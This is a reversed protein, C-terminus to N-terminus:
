YSWGLSFGGAVRSAQFGDPKSLPMGVFVDVATGLIEGRMGLATGTLRRGALTAATPGGVVGHDLAVYLELASASPLIFALENRLLWGREASLVFEGDFGRVTYRGGISFRDQPVLPTQNWQARLSVQFRLQQEGASVPVTASATAATLRGRSTGEGFLEEPAALSGILGTGKRVNLGLDITARGVFERHVAGLEWGAMRRRQVEVETDDIWNRSTRRWVSLFASTKRVADRHVIRSLRLEANSSEGSYIYAQYAGAVSQHYDSSSATFGLLWYGFPLSYHFTTAESGNTGPKGGGLDRTLSLYFLDNLTWWHDYSVTLSGRVKGAAKTGSDDVAAHVRLPFRQQWQVVVDSEGPQAGEGEAPAIQLDAEASPVRKLNELGQELDRLDLLEGPRGPMANVLTARGDVDPATRISRIRGPVVTLELVGSRLDQPGALIRSTVFGRAILANQMRNMVIGIGGTGLCRGLPADAEGSATHAAAEMAWQFRDAMQGTLRIREIPFCPSENDPILADKEGTQRADLRVAPEAEQQQRLMQEREAQRRQERQARLESETQAVAPAAFGHGLLLALLVIGFFRLNFSLNVRLRPAM